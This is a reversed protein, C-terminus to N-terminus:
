RLKKFRPDAGKASKLRVRVRLSDVLPVPIPLDGEILVPTGTTEEMWIKLTGQIGFLGQFSTNPKDDPNGRLLRTSLSVRRSRYVGAPVEIDKTEGVTATVQWLRQRDVIPFVATTKGDRVLSRAIWVAGLMDLADEPATDAIPARWVRHELKKCKKCHEPKQWAFTGEVYHEKNDCKACHGDSRFQLSHVPEAGEAAVFGLRLERNRNESGRQQDKHLIRPWPQPLFRTELTHVVHYGMYGGSAVSRVWASELKGVQPADSRADPMNSLLDERGSLLQVDGVDLDGVGVDIEVDYGLSEGPLIQLPQLGEGRRVLFYDRGQQQELVVFPAFPVAPQPAAVVPAPPPVAPEPEPLAPEPLAPEAVATEAAPAAPVVPAPEVVAPEVAEAVPQAAPAERLSPEAGAKPGACACLVLVGALLSLDSATANRRRGGSKRQQSM